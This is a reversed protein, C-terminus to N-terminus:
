VKSLMTKIKVAPFEKRAEVWARIWTPIIVWSGFGYEGPQYSYERSVEVKGVSKIEIPLKKVEFRYCYLGWPRIIGDFDEFMRCNGNLFVDENPAVTNLYDVALLLNLGSETQKDANLVVAATYFGDADRFTLCEGKEFYADVLRVKKPRRPKPKKILIKEQLAEVNRQRKVSDKDAGGLRVWREVEYKTEAIKSLAQRYQTLEVGVEWLAKCVAYIFDPAEDDDLLIEQFDRELNTVIELPSINANYQQFFSYYIDQYTDSSSLAVGWCGM